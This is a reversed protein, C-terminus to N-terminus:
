RAEGESSEAAPAFYTMAQFMAEEMTFGSEARPALDEATCQFALFCANLVPTIHEKAYRRVAEVDDMEGALLAVHLFQETVWERDSVRDPNKFMVALMGGVIKKERPALAALRNRLDARDLSSEM